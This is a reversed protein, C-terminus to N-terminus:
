RIVCTRRLPIALAPYVEQHPENRVIRVPAEYPIGSELCHQKCHPSTFFLRHQSFLLYPDHKKCWSMGLIFDYGITSIDFAISETHDGIKLQLPAFTDIVGGRTEGGDALTLSMPQPKFMSAFDNLETLPRNILCGQAGSDVMGSASIWKTGNWIKADVEILPAYEPMPTSLSQSSLVQFRNPSAFRSM